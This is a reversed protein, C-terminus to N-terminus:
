LRVAAQYVPVGKRRLDDGALPRRECGHRFRGGCQCCRERAFLQGFTLDGCRRRCHCGAKESFLGLEVGQRIKRSWRTIQQDLLNHLPM